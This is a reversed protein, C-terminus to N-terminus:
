SIDTTPTSKFSGPRKSMPKTAYRIIILTNKKPQIPLIGCPVLKGNIKAWVSQNQIIYRLSCRVLVINYDMLVKFSFLSLQRRDYIVVIHIRRQGSHMINCWVVSVAAQHWSMLFHAVTYNYKYQFIPTLFISRLPSHLMTISCRICVFQLVTSSHETKVARTSISEVIQKSQDEENFEKSVCSLVGVM